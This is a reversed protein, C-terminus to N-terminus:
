SDSPEDSDGSLNLLGKIRDLNNFIKPFNLKVSHFVALYLEDPNDGFYNSNNIDEIENGDIIVFALLKEALSWIEDFSIAQLKYALVSLDQQMDLGSLLLPVILLSSDHFVNIAQKGRLKNFVYEKEEGDFGKITVKLDSSQITKPKVPM